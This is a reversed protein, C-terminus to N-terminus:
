SACALPSPCAMTARAKAWEAVNSSIAETANGDSTIWWSSQGCAHARGAERGGGVQGKRLGNVKRLMVGVAQGGSLLEGGGEDPEAADWEQGVEVLRSLNHDVGRKVVAPGALLGLSNVLLLGPAAVLLLVDPVLGARRCVVSGISCPHPHHIPTPWRRVRSRVSPPRSTYYQTISALPQPAASRGLCQQPRRLERIDFSFFNKLDNM